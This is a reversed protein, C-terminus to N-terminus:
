RGDHDRRRAQTPVGYDVIKGGKVNFTGSKTAATHAAAKRASGRGDDLGRGVQMTGSSAATLQYNYTGDPLAGFQKLDLAVAGGRSFARAQFDGPGAVTLTANSYAGKLVFGVSTGGVQEAAVM